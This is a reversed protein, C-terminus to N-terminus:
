QKLGTGEYLQKATIKSYPKGIHTKGRHKDPFIKQTDIRKHFKKICRKISGLNIDQELIEESGRKALDDANKNDETSQHKQKM